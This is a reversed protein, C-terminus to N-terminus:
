KKNVSNTNNIVKLAEYLKEVGVQGPASIKGIAGFTLASGFIEGTVRTIVGLDGMSMTIIPRDAYKELMIVTAELLALVDLKCKPMVAIKSIDVGLGQINRLKTVLEKSTPTKEFDHNSGIVKVDNAHAFKVFDKVLNEGRLVEIDVLDVHGGVTIQSLLSIYDETKINCEGGENSTRITFILPINVLIESLEKTIEIVKEIDCVDNYWDVRWEVIDAKTKVIAKAVTLIEERTEAVIPVCIKPIGEGIVLNKVKVTNM